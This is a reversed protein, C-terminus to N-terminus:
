GGRVSARGEAVEGRRPSPPNAGGRLRPAAGPFGGGRATAIYFGAPPPAPQPPRLGGARGRGAPPAPRPLGGGGGGAAQHPQPGGGGGGAPRVGAQASERPA